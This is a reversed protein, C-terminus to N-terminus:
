KSLQKKILSAEGVQGGPCRCGTKKTSHNPKLKFVYNTDTEEWTFDQHPSKPTLYPSVDIQQDGTSLLVITYPNFYM